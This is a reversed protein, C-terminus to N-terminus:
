FLSKSLARRVFAVEDRSWDSFEHRNRQINRLQEREENMNKLRRGLQDYRANKTNLDDMINNRKDRFVKESFSSGQNVKFYPYPSNVSFQHSVPEARNYLERIEHTPAGSNRLNSELSMRHTDVQDLNASPDTNSYM